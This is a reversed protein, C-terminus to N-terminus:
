AARDLSSSRWRLRGSRTLRVIGGRQRTASRGKVRENRLLSIRTLGSKRENTIQIDQSEDRIGLPISGRNQVVRNLNQQVVSDRDAKGAVIRLDQSSEGYERQKEFLSASRESRREAAVQPQRIIEVLHAVTESSDDDDARM